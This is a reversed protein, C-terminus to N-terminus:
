GGPAVTTTTTTSSTSSSTPVSSEPPAAVTTTTTASGSGSSGSGSSGSGSGSNSGSSSGNGGGPVRSSGKTEVIPQTRGSVAQALIRWYSDLAAFVVDAMRDGGKATLHIGDSGRLVIRDGDADVVSGAYEGSEDVFQDTVDVYTVEPRAAAAQEIVANLAEVNHDLDGERMPPTSVWYVARGEDGVFIDMMVEVRARYDVRWNEGSDTTTDENLYGLMTADNTDIIFVVAEPDLRAMEKAAHKPWNFFEPSILGSSPRSDLQPAVVGTQATTTGLSIGLAGALSDGGIWLRLPDDVSLARATAGDPATVPVRGSVTAEPAAAVPEVVPERETYAYGAGALGGVLLVVIAGAGLRLRRRRHRRAIRKTRADVAAPTSPLSDLTTM